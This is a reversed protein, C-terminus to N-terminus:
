VSVTRFKVESQAGEHIVEEDSGADSGLELEEEDSNGNDSEAVSISATEGRKGSLIQLTYDEKKNLNPYSFGKFLGEPYMKVLECYAQSRNLANNPKGAMKAAFGQWIQSNFVDQLIDTTVGLPFRVSLTLNRLM